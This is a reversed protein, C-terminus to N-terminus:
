IKVGRFLGIFFDVAALIVAGGVITGIWMFASVRSELRETRTKLGEKGNGYLTNDHDEIKEKIYKVDGKIELLCEKMEEDTM